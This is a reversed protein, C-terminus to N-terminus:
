VIGTGDATLSLNSFAGSWGTLSNARPNRKLLNRALIPQDRWRVGRADNPDGILEQGVTPAPLRGATDNATGVILDGKADILARPVSADKAATEAANAKATAENKANAEAANAKATAENLAHRDLYPLANWRTTGDGMKGRGTDTEYGLEGEALIPNSAAAGAATNRRIKITSM